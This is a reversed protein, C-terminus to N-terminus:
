KSVEELTESQELLALYERGRETMRFHDKVDGRAQKELSRIGREPLGEILGLSRLRRLEQTFFPTTENREYLFPAAAAFQRLHKLETGTVFHSVLFKLTNIEAQQSQQTSELRKFEVKWGGPLEASQLISALWPLAAV